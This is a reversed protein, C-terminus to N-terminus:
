IMTKSLNLLPAIGNLGLRLITREVEYASKGDPRV